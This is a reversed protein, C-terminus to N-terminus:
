QEDTLQHFVWGSTVKRMKLCGHIIREITSHSPSTEPIIEHYTSHLDNSNVQRILQINEGTFQSLPTPSRHHDNLDERRQRM